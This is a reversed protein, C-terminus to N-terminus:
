FHNLLAIAITRTLEFVPTTQPPLDMASKFYNTSFILLM